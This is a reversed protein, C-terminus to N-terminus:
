KDVEDKWNRIRQAAGNVGGHSLRNFAVGGPVSAAIQGGVRDLEDFAELFAAVMELLKTFAPRQIAIAKKQFDAVADLYRQKRAPIQYRLRRVEQFHEERERKAAEYTNKAAAFEAESIQSTAFQAEAEAFTDEADEHPAEGITRQRQIDARYADWADRLAQIAADNYIPGDELKERAKAMAVGGSQNLSNMAIGRSRRPGVRIVGVVGTVSRQPVEGKRELVAVSTFDNITGLDIAIIRM